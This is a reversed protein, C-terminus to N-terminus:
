LKRILINDRGPLEVEVFSSNPKTPEDPWVTKYTSIGPMQTEIKQFNTKQKISEVKMKVSLDVAKSEYLKNVDDSLDSISELQEETDEQQEAEEENEDEEDSNDDEHLVLHTPIPPVDWIKGKKLDETLSLKEMSEKARTEANQMSQQIEINSINISFKEYQKSGDKKHGFKDQRPFSIGSANGTKSQCEEQINLKHIRQLMGLLSFNVVTSFTGTMSRLSRFVRECSQSGM